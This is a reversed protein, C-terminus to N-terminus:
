AIAARRPRLLLLAPLWWAAAPLPGPETTRCSCGTAEGRGGFLGSTGHGTGASPDGPDDPDGPDWDSGGGSGGSGGDEPDVTAENSFPSADGDRVARVRYRLALDAEASADVFTTSGATADGILTWPEGPGDARQIEVGTEDANEDAWTLRVEDGSERVAVLGTPAELALAPFDMTAMSVQGAASNDAYLLVLTRGVGVMRPRLRGEGANIERGTDTQAAWTQGGDESTTSILSSAFGEKTDHTRLGVAALGSGDDTAAVASMGISLHWTDLGTLVTRDDVQASGDVGFRAYHVEGDVCSPCAGPFQDHSTFGSGYTLHLAGARDFYISPFGHDSGTGAAHTSPSAVASALDGAAIALRTPQSNDGAALAVVGGHSRLLAGNDVRYWGSATTLPAVGGATGQYLHLHAWVNDGTETAMLVAGGSGDGAVGVQWNWRAPTGFTTGASWEGDPSRRRYQLTYGHDFDGGARLAVHVTGDADVAIAPAHLMPNQVADGVPEDVLVQGTTDLQVYHDSVVHVVGSDDRVADFQVGSTVPGRFEWAAVLTLFCPALLRIM